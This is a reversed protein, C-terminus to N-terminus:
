SNRIQRAMSRFQNMEKGPRRRSQDNQNKSGSSGGSSRSSSTASFRSPEATKQMSSPETASSFQPESRKVGQADDGGLFYGDSQLGLLQNFGGILGNFLRGFFRFFQSFSGLIRILANRLFQTIQFM